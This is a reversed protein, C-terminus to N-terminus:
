AYRAAGFLVRGTGPAALVKGHEYVIKGRLRVREVRGVVERGRFPTWGVRTRMASDELTYVADVDVEISTDPPVPIGYIRQPAAYCRQVIDDVSLRGRQVETLLLPLMTEVGPVGPPPKPGDKEQRTHPAHDTGFIDVIALHDWLAAVDDATALRPRM